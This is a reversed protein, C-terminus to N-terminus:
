AAPFAIQLDVLDSGVRRQIEALLEADYAVPTRLPMPLSGGGGPVHIVVPTEGPRERIVQRLTEMAPVLRAAPNRVFRIHLVSGPAPTATATTPADAAGVARSRAEDPLAPEVDLEPGPARASPDDLYTPVPIAPEIRPLGSVPPAAVAGASAAGAAVAMGRASGGGARLPGEPPMVGGRLPSVYPIEVHGNGNGNAAAATGTAITPGNSAPGRGPGVAVAGAV